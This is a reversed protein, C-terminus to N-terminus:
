RNLKKGLRPFISCLDMSNNASNRIMKVEYNNYSLQVIEDFIIQYYFPHIVKRNIPKFIPRKPWVPVRIPREIERRENCKRPGM